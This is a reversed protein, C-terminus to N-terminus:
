SSGLHERLATALLEYQPARNYLQASIRVLRKPPAPWPILPVEIGPKKLLQTQLPDSYLASAPPEASGDWIPLAAM